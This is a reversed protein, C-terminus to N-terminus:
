LATCTNFIPMCQHSCCEASSTCPGDEKCVRALDPASADVGADVSDSIGADDFSVDVTASGVQSLRLALSAKQGPLVTATAPTSAWTPQTGNIFSCPNAFALASFTTTGVALNNITLLASTGPSVDFNNLTSRSGATTIQVCFVSPPVATIAAEIGGVVTPDQSSSSSVTCAAALALSVLALVRISTM